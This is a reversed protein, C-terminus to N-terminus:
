EELDSPSSFIIESPLNLNLENKEAYKAENFRLYYRMFVHNPHAKKTHEIFHQQGSSDTYATTEKYDYGVAAKLAVTELIDVIDKRCDLYVQRVAPIDRARYISNKSVGFRKAIQVNSLGELLYARLKDLFDQSEFNITAPKEPKKTSYRATVTPNQVKVSRRKAESQSKIPM